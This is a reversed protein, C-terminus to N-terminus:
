QLVLKLYHVGTATTLRALYFGPAVTAAQWQAQVPQGAFAQGAKLHQVLRGNTDYIALQYAESHALTFELTTSGTFPNPYSRVTQNLEAAKNPTALVAATQVGKSANAGAPEQGYVRQGQVYVTVHDNEALAAAARYSFDNAQNFASWDAKALRFQVNGTTSLSALNGLTAAFHLEAYSQTGAQGFTVSVNNSGLQVYDVFAKMAQTGEPSFWYRVTLDQYAVPQNGVNRLQLTTSITNSNANRERNETWVQLRRDAAV